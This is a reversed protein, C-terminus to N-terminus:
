HYYYHIDHVIKTCKQGYKPQPQYCPRHKTIDYPKRVYQHNVTYSPAKIYCPKNYKYPPCKDYCPKDYSYPPCKDYCPKDYSYPPCKDYCPKDYSYPPCKDQKEVCPYCQQTGYASVCRSCTCYKPYVCKTKVYQTPCSPNKYSLPITM